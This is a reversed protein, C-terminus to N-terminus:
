RPASRPAAPLFQEGWTTSTYPAVAANGHDNHHPKVRAASPSGSSANFTVTYSGQISGTVERRIQEGACGTCAQNPTGAGPITTFSGTDHLTATYAYCAGSTTGCASASEASGRTVTVIRFITDTAWVAPNGHGTDPDNTILTVATASM